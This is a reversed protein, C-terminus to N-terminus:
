AADAILAHDEQPSETVQKKITNTRSLQLAQRAAAVGCRGRRRTAADLRWVGTTPSISLQQNM